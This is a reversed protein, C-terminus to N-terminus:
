RSIKKVLKKRAAIQAEWWQKKREQNLLEPAFDALITSLALIKEPQNKRDQILAAQAEAVATTFREITFYGSHYKEWWIGLHAMFEGSEFYDRLDRSRSTRLTVEKVEFDNKLALLKKQYESQQLLIAPIGAPQGTTLLHDTKLLTNNHKSDNAVHKGNSKRIVALNKKKM